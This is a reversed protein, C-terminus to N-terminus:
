SECLRRRQEQNTGSSEAVLQPHPVRRLVFDRFPADEVLVHTDKLFGNRVCLLEANVALVHVLREIVKGGPTVPLTADIEETVAHALVPKIAHDLPERKKLFMKARSAKGPSHGPLRAGAQRGSGKPCTEGMPHRDRASAGEASGDLCGKPRSDGPRAQQPGSWGWRRETKVSKRGGKGLSVLRARM